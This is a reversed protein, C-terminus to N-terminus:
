SSSQQSQQLQEDNQEKEEKTAIETLKEHILVKATELCFKHGWVYGEEGRKIKNGCIECPTLLYEEAEQIKEQIIQYTIPLGAEKLFKYDQYCKHAVAETMGGRIAAELYNARAADNDIKALWKAVALSIENRLVAEQVDQPYKLLDLREKIHKRVVGLTEAMKVIDGGFLPLMKEFFRAEDIPNINVRVNAHYIAKIEDELTSYDRVVIKATTFGASKLAWYRTNGSIIKFKDGVRKCVIREQQGTDKLSQVLKDFEEESINVHLQYDSPILQDLPVELFEEPM